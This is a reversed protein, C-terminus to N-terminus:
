RERGPGCCAPRKATPSPSRCFQAAQIKVGTGGDGYQSLAALADGKPTGALNPESLSQAPESLRSAPGEAGAPSFAPALVGSQSSAREFAFDPATPDPPNTFWVLAAAASANVAVRPGVPRAGGRAVEATAGLARDPAITRTLVALPPTDFRVWTVRAQGNAAIDVDLDASTKGVVILEVEEVEGQM